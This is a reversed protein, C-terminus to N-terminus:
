EGKKNLLTELKKDIKAYYEEYTEVSELSRFWDFYGHEKRQREGNVNWQNPFSLLTEIAKLKGKYVEEMALWVKLDQESEFAAIVDNVVSSIVKWENTHNTEIRWGM